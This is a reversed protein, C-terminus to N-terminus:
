TLRDNTGDIAEDQKVEVRAAQYSSWHGVVNAYVSVFVLFPVSHSWALVAPIALALWAYTAVLHFGRLFAPRGFLALVRM